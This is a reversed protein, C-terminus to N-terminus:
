STSRCTDLDSDVAVEEQSAAVFAQASGVAPEAPATHQTRDFEDLLEWMENQRLWVPDANRLLFENEDIGEITPHRRIRKQKGNVFITMFEKKRRNKEVKERGTLKRRSM